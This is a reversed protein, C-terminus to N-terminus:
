EGFTEVARDMNAIVDVGFPCREMCTGCETCASAKVSLAEYDAVVADRVGFGATDTIKTLTGIDISVPCPLCHNCYMCSGKLEWMPNRHIDSFDKEEDTASLFALAAQVEAVNKCGPLVTCVAPQSLAYSLCQVPTLIISSPNERFLVGAAYPKMAVLAV